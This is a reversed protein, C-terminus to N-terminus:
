ELDVDPQEQFMKKRRNDYMSPEKFPEGVGYKPPIQLNPKSTLVDEFHEIRSSYEHPVGNNFLSGWAENWKHPAEQEQKLRQEWNKAEAEPNNNKKVAPAGEAAM